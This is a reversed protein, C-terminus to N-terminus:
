RRLDAQWLRDTDAADADTGSWWLWVSKPTAGSPLHETDLRIM